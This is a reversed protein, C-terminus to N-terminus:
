AHAAPWTASHEARSPFVSKRLGSPPGSWHRTGWPPVLLSLFAPRTMEDHAGKDSRGSHVASRHGVQSRPESRSHIL